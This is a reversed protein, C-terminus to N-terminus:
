KFDRWVESARPENSGQYKGEYLKIKGYIRWFTVQGITMGPYIRVPQTAHFQLTLKGHFGIDVLDSTIHVFLGLRGTSSRGTLIPVYHDSGIIENTCGLYIKNPELIMGEEPIEMTRTDNMEKADLENKTYVKIYKDLTYNYSNPNINNTNFPRIDIKGNNVQKIIEKGSLIM